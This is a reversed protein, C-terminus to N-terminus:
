PTDEVKDTEVFKNEICWCLMSYAANILDKEMMIEHYIEFGYRGTNGYAIRNNDFDIYLSAHWTCGDKSIDKPLADLVDQLTFTPIDEVRRIAADSMFEYPHLKLTIYSPEKSFVYGGVEQSYEGNRIIWYHMSAKSTDFGLEQLHQMQQVDLVQKSM